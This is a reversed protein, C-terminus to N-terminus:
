LYESKTGVVKLDKINNKFQNTINIQSANYLGNMMMEKYHIFLQIM